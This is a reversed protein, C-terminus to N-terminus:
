QTRPSEPMSEPIFRDGQLLEELFIPAPAGLFEDKPPDKVSHMLGQLEWRMALGSKCVCKIIQSLARMDAGLFPLVDGAGDRSQCAQEAGELQGVGLALAVLDVDSLVEAGVDSVKSMQSSAEAGPWGVEHLKDGLLRCQQSGSISGFGVHTSHAIVRVPGRMDPLLRKRGIDLIVKHGKVVGLSMHGVTVKFLSAENSLSIDHTAGM